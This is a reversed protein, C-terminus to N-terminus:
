RGLRFLSDFVARALADQEAVPLATAGANARDALNSEILDLVISRGLEEQATKNLRARDAAVAQSLQESAQARLAAVLTWDVERNPSSVAAIGRSLTEVRNPPDSHTELPSSTSFLPLEALRTATGTPSETRELTM